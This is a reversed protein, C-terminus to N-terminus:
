PTFDLRMGFKEWLRSAEALTARSAEGFQLSEWDSKRSFGTSIKKDDPRLLARYSWPKGPEPPTEVYKYNLAALCRPIFPIDLFVCLKNMEREPDEVLLTYDIAHRVLSREHNLLRYVKGINEWAQDESLKFYSIASLVVDRPDRLLTFCRGEPFMIEMGSWYWNGFDSGQNAPNLWHVLPIGIPKQMWFLKDSPFFSVLMDRVAAGARRLYGETTVADPPRVVVKESVWLGYWASYVLDATEGLTQCDPHEHFIAQLM